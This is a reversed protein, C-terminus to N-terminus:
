VMRNASCELREIFVELDNDCGLLTNDSSYNCVDTDDFFYFLDNICINVLLPELM